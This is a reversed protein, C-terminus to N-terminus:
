EYHYMCKWIDIVIIVIIVISLFLYYSDCNVCNLKRGFLALLPQFNLVIADLLGNLKRTCTEEANGVSSAAGFVRLLNIYM